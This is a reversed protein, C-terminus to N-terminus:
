EEKGDNIRKIAEDLIEKSISKKIAIDEIISYINYNSLETNQRIMLKFEELSEYRLEASNDNLDFINKGNKATKLEVEELIIENNEKYELILVKPKRKIEISSNNLRAVSGPNAFYKNDVKKIGFGTHYHGSLVIDADIDKIDDILTYPIGKIFPKELLLSHILVIHLNINELRKVKYYDKEEKDINYIYPIGSIQIKKNDFELIYPKNYEILNVIDLSSLLGLMSRDITKPNHGFIDHNGSIIFIPVGLDKLINGFKSVTKVSVDPRDFLDGGHLVYDINNDKIIKSIEYFKKEIAEEFDDLRSKPSNNRIHTDTLFLFKM